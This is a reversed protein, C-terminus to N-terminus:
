EVCSSFAGSRAGKVGIEEWLCCMGESSRFGSLSAWKRFLKGSVVIPAHDPASTVFELLIMNAFDNDPRDRTGETDVSSVVAKDSSKDQLELDISETGETPAAEVFDAPLEVIEASGVMGEVSDFDSL